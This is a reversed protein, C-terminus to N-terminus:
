SSSRGYGLSAYGRCVQSPAEQGVVKIHPEQVVDTDEYLTGRDHNALLGSMVGCVGGIFSRFTAYALAVDAYTAQIPM